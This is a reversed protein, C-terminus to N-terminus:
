HSAAKNKKGGGINNEFGNLKEALPLEKKGPATGTPAGAKAWKATRTMEGWKAETKFLYSILGEFRWITTLQRYGLNEIIAVLFLVLLHRMKPYTHFAIEELLLSTFSLLLGLGIAVLMFAAFAKLSILGFLFCLIMVAYGLVEVAAGLGEFILLFPLALSTLSFTNATKM